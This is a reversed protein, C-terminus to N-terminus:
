KKERLCAAHEAREKPTVRYKRAAAEVEAPTHNNVYWRVLWCPYSRAEAISPVTLAIAVLLARIM